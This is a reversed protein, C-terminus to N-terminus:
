EKFFNLITEKDKSNLNEINEINKLYEKSYFDAFIDAENKGMFLFEYTINKLQHRSKNYFDKPYKEVLSNVDTYEEFYKLDQTNISIFSFIKKLDANTLNDVDIKNLYKIFESYKRKEKEIEYDINKLKREEEEAQSLEKRYETLFEELERDTLLGKDNLRIKNKFNNKLDLIQTQVNILKSQTELNYYADMYEDFRKELIEKNQRYGEINKKCFGLLYDESVTNRYACKEKGILDNKLCVWDYKDAITKKKKRRMAGGCNGCILLSSFLNKDSYRHNNKFKEARAHFQTQASEWLEDSIIRLEEKTHKIWEHDPVDKVLIINVDMNVSKHTTQVGKYLPNTLINQVHQQRWIGNKKTPINNDTLWIAIKNQGWKDDVYHLFIQKVIEAENDNKKLYGDIRDYGFPCNSTWKGANQSKRIGWQVATSKSRSEEQASMLLVNIIAENNSFLLNGDEFLVDIGYSKLTKLDSAGDAVNRAFRPINKVIILDFEKRKACEMMRKFAQRNKKKTGSIGEDAFIGELHEEGRKKSYLMGCNAKTYEKNHLIENYHEIQHTLSSLQEESSTSVRCYLVVRM